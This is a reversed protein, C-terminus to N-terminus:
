DDKGSVAFGDEAGSLLRAPDGRRVRGQVGKIREVDLQGLLAQCVVDRAVMQTARQNSSLALDCV